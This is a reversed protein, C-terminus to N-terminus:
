QLLKELAPRVNVRFEYQLRAANEALNANQASLFEIERALASFTDQGIYAGSSVLQHAIGRMQAVDGQAAAAQMTHLLDTTISLFTTIVETTLQPPTFEAVEPIPVLAGPSHAMWHEVASQMREMSIPKALYDDMGAKLAAERDHLTTGATIAIIPIHQDTERARVRRTAEYGDVGPLHIDMLVLDYKGSLIEDVAEIGDIIASAEYGMKTLQILMLKQNVLNDEVVLLTPPLNPYLVRRLAVLAFNPPLYATVEPRPPEYGIVVLRTRAFAPNNKFINILSASDIGLTARNLIIVDYVTRALKLLAAHGSEVIETTESTLAAQIHQSVTPEDDIILIHM